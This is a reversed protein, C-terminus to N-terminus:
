HHSSQTGGEIEVNKTYFCKDVLSEGLIYWLFSTPCVKFKDTVQNVTVDRQTPIEFKRRAGELMSFYIRRLSRTTHGEFEPMKILEQYDIMISYVWGKQEM